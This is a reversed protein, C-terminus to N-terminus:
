CFLPCVTKRLVPCLLRYEPQTYSGTKRISPLVESTVWRSFKRAEPKRSRLVLAYLGSENIILLTGGRELPENYREDDDLHDNVAKSTNQYGLASCVDTAAFWAIGDRMVVRVAQTDFQFPIMASM